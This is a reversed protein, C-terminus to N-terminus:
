EKVTVVISTGQFGSTDLGIKKTNQGQVIRGGTTLWTVTSRAGTRAYSASCTLNDGIMATEPCEVAVVAVHEFFVAVFDKPRSYFSTCVLREKETPIYTIQFIEGLFSKLLLGSKEDFYGRYGKYRSAAPNFSKLRRRDLGLAELTTGTLLERQVMLVTDPAVADSCCTPTAFEILVEENPLTFECSSDNGACKGFLRVVDARTSRLPVIGRWEEAITHPV